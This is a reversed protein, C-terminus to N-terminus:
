PVNQGSLERKLWSKVFTWDRAVTDPSVELAAATEQLTLGGFIRLEVVRAKRADVSALTELAADLALLDLGRQPAPALAEDFTVRAGGGGRKAARRERAADVLVRRMLRSAMAFFHARDRWEIKRTDVLRLYAENALATAQLTHGPREHRLHQRALRRLEGYVLPMLDTLAQDNGARWAVLLTTVASRGPDPSQISM